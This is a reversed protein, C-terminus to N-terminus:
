DERRYYKVLKRTWFPSKTENVTETRIIKGNSYRLTFLLNDNEFGELSQWVPEYIRWNGTRRGNLFTGSFPVMVLSDRKHKISQAFRVPGDAKKSLTTLIARESAFIEAERSASVKRQCLSLRYPEGEENEKARWVYILFREGLRPTWGCSASYLRTVFEHTGLTTREKFSSLVCGTVSVFELHRIPPVINKRYRGAEQEVRLSDFIRQAEIYELRREVNKDVSVFEVELVDYSRDFTLLDFSTTRSGCSCATLSPFSGVILFIPLLLKM